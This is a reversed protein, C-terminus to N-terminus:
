RAMMLMAPATRGDRFMCLVVDLASTSYDGIGSSMDLGDIMSAAPVLGFRM